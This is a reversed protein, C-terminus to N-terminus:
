DWLRTQALVSHVPRNQQAYSREWVRLNDWALRNAERQQRPSLLMFGSRYHRSLGLELCASAQGIWAIRNLSVDTLFHECARPWELFVRVTARHFADLNSLFEAYRQKGSALNVGCPRYMALCEWEHLPYWRRTM